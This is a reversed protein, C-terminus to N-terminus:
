CLLHPIGTCTGLLFPISYADGWNRKFYDDWGQMITAHYSTITFRKEYEMKAILANSPTWANSEISSSTLPSTALESNSSSAQRTKSSNALLTSSTTQSCPPILRRSTWSTYPPLYKQMGDTKWRNRLPQHTALVSGSSKGEGEGKRGGERIVELVQISGPRWVPVRPRGWNGLGEGPQRIGDSQQVTTNVQEVNGKWSHFHYWETTYSGGLYEYQKWVIEKISWLLITLYISSTHTLPWPQHATTVDSSDCAMQWTDCWRMHRPNSWVVLVAQLQDSIITFFTIKTVFINLAQPMCWVWGVGLGGKGGRIHHIDTPCSCRYRSSRRDVMM